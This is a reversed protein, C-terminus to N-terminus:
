IIHLEEILEPNLEYLPLFPSPAHEKKRYGQMYTTLGGLIGREITAGEGRVKSNLPTGMYVSDLYTEGHFTSLGDTKLDRV